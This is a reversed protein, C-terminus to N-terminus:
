FRQELVEANVAFVGELPVPKHDMAEPEPVIVVKFEGVEVRVPNLTPFLTKTHVMELPEHGCDRSVTTIFTSAKGVVDFAPCSWDTQEVEAVRLPFIATFPVPVHDSTEPPPVMVEMLEGVEETVPRAMPFLLNTHVMTLPEQGAEVSVTVILASAGGVIALAPVSWDIQELEDTKEAFVGDTPVAKHASMEPVPVTVVELEEVDVTVPKDTPLLTKTHVMLLPEHGGERSVTTILTSAKGVSEFAPLSWTIHAVVETKEALVAVVPVPVHVRTPPVPVILETLEATEETEPRELPFLLNTHVMAFPEQGAEESVTVM